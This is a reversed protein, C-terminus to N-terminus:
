EPRYGGFHAQWERTSRGYVAMPERALARSCDAQSDYREGAYIGQGGREISCGPGNPHPYMAPVKARPLGGGILPAVGNGGAVNALSVVDISELRTM